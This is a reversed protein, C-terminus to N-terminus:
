RDSPSVDPVFTVGATHGERLPLQGFDRILDLVSERVGDVADGTVTARKQEIVGLKPKPESFLLGTVRANNDGILAWTGHIFDNRRLRIEDVRDLWARVRQVESEDNFGGALAWCHKILSAAPMRHHLLAGTFRDLGGLNELLERLLM